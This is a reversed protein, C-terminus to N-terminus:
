SNVEISKRLSFLVALGIGGSCARHGDATHAIGAVTGGDYACVFLGAPQRAKRMM